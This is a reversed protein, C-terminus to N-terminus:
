VAELKQKRGASLLIGLALLVAFGLMLYTGVAPYNYVTFNGMQQSGFLPPTFPKIKIAATPDLNHGYMYLRSYFHWFAFLGFWAFLVLTDVLGSMKGIVVSRLSLIIFFGLMLPIWQFETFDAEQLPHMGIYHNLSNIERLDDRVASQGGRLTGAYIDLKLGDPFQNSYLTMSYLPYFFVPLLLLAALFITIRSALGLPRDFFKAEKLLFSERQPASTAPASINVPQPM